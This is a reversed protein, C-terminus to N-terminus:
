NRPFSPLSPFRFISIRPSLATQWSTPSFPGRFNGSLFFARIRPLDEPKPDM